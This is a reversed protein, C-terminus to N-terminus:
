RPGHGLHRTCGYLVLVRRGRWRAQRRGQAHGRHQLPGAAGESPCPRVDCRGRYSVGAGAADPRAECALRSGCRTTAANPATLRTTLIFLTKAMILNRTHCTHETTAHPNLDALTERMRVAVVLGSAFTLAAVLWIAAGLGLADATIGALLAGIAYGLDRWLRYVGVSSARWSPIRSTASRPSCRRTSWRRASASCCPARPSARSAAPSRHGAVIGLRRCGCARPSSGSAASATPRARRHLAARHGLRRSLDRRAHRDARADHGRGRLLAPLAGVGHRREPQQRARGPQRELPEPRAAVHALLGRAAVAHRGPPLEGHLKAEHRSTTSADRARLARLALLGSRSSASASISRSRGCGTARPSSLRHRAREGAVAFYGAFENLGM